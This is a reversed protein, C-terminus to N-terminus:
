SSELPGIIEEVQRCSIAGSRLLRPTAGSLDLITSESGPCSGGDLVADIVDGLGHMVDQATHPPAAGSPNASPATIPGSFARLLEMATASGPARLAINGGGPNLAPALHSTNSQKVILTLAGPWFVAALRHAKDDLVGYLAAEQIDKVLVILAKDARRAKAKFLNLVASKNRADAGLGYLTETPFAVLGGTRLIAAAANINDPTAPLLRARPPPTTM